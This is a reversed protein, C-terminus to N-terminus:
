PSADKERGPCPDPPDPAVHRVEGCLQCRQDYEVSLGNEDWVINEMSWLHQRTVDDGTM